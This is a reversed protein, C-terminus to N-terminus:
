FIKWSKYICFIFLYFRKVATQCQIQNWRHYLFLLLLLPPPYSEGLAWAPDVSKAHKSLLSSLSVHPVSLPGAPFCKTACFSPDPLCAVQPARGQATITACIIKGQEKSETKEEEKTKTKRTESLVVPSENKSETKMKNQFITTKGQKKKKKKIDFGPVHFELILIFIRM